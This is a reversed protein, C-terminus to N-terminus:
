RSKCLRVITVMHSDLLEDAMNWLRSARVVDRPHETNSLVSVLRTMNEKACQHMVHAEVRDEPEPEIKKSQLQTRLYVIQDCSDVIRIFAVPDHKSFESDLQHIINYLASDLSLASTEVSLKPLTKSKAYKMFLAYTGAVVAGAVGFSGIQVSDKM